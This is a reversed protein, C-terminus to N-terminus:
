VCHDWLSEYRQKWCLSFCWVAENRSLPLNRYLILQDTLESLLNTNAKEPPSGGGMDEGGCVEERGAWTKVEAAGGACRDAEKM